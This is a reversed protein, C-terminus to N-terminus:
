LASNALSLFLTAWHLKSVSWMAEGQHSVWEYGSHMIMWGYKGCQAMFTCAWRLKRPGLGSVMWIAARQNLHKQMASAVNQGYMANCWGKGWLKGRVVPADPDGDLV